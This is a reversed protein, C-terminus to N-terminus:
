SVDNQDNKQEREEERDGLRQSRPEVEETITNM